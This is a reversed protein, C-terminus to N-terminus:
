ISHPGLQKMFTSILCHICLWATFICIQLQGEACELRHAPIQAPIQAELTAVLLIWLLAYEYHFGRERAAEWKSTLETTDKLTHM